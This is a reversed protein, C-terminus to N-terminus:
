VEVNKQFQQRSRNIATTHETAWNVLSKIHVLLGDGIQTLKYEVKPPVQPYVMRNILGDTELTRLTVTLMKQSIDPIAKNIESFRMVGNQYLTLLVLVSWKDGFRDLINRIPCNDM